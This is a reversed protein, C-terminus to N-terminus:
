RSALGELGKSARENHPDLQLAREFETRARKEDGATAYARGLGFAASSSSPYDRANARLLALAGKTESMKLMQYGIFEVGHSTDVGPHGRRFTDYSWLVADPDMRESYLAELFAQLPTREFRPPSFWSRPLDRNVEIAGWSMESLIKGSALDVEAIHFPFLVGDVARYDDFRSETKVEQGFAHVPAVYRKAVVLWSKADIFYRDSSGDRLTVDLEYAPRGAIKTTGILTITTGKRRYDIFPGLFSTGHRTARSAAGVTRVVVGPNAYWEWTSEDYGEMFRTKPDAPNGVVRDYPAMFAMFAGGDSTYSGEHYAGNRYVLTRIARLQAEGGRAALHHAIIQDVTIPPTAGASLALAVLATLVGLKRM